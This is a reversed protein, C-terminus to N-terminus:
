VDELCHAHVIKIAALLLFIVQYHLECFFRINPSLFPRDSGYDKRVTDYAEAPNKEM